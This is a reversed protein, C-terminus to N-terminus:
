IHSYNVYDWVAQFSLKLSFLSEIHPQNHDYFRHFRPKTKYIFM